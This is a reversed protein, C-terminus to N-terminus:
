RTGGSIRATTEASCPLGRAASESCFHAAAQYNNLDMMANAVNDRIGPFDARLKYAIVFQNLALSYQHKQAYAAGLINHAQASTALSTARKLLPIAGDVDGKSLLAAAKHMYPDPYFPTLEMAKDFAKLADEERGSRYYSLGLDTYLVGSRPNANLAQKFTAIAEQYRGERDLIQGLMRNALESNPDVELAKEYMRKASKEDGLLRYAWGMNSYPKDLRPALEAAKQFMSIAKLYDGRQMCVLGYNNYAVFSTKNVELTAEWVALPDSWLMTQKVSALGLVAVWLYLGVMVAKGAATEIGFRRYALDACRAVILALGVMPLYLFHDAVFSSVMFGFPVLGSVLSLNILFFLVGWLIWKDLRKRFYVLISSVGLFAMFLVVFWGPNGVVDWRPYLPALQLPIVFKELYFWIAASAILPRYPWSPLISAYTRETSLVYIGWAVALVFLTTLIYIVGRDNIKERYCVMVLCLLAAPLTVASPKSLLGLVFLIVVFILYRSGRAASGEAVPPPFDTGGQAHNPIGNLIGRLGGKSFPSVAAGVDGSTFSSPFPGAVGEGKGRGGPSLTESGGERSPLPSPSPASQSLDSLVNRKDQPGHPFLAKEGAVPHFGVSSLYRLFLIMSAVYFLTSLLNKREAIWAVTGVQIPHAAFVLAGILAARRGTGIMLLLAFVLVSNVVHYVVNMVKSIGANPELSNVLIQDLMLSLFHLPDYYVEYADELRFDTLIKWAREWSPKWIAAIYKNDDWGSFQHNVVPIYIAATILVLLIISLLINRRLARSDASASQETSDPTKV